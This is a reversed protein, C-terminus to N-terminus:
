QSHDRGHAPVLSVSPGITGTGQVLARLREADGETTGPLLAAAVDRRNFAEMGNRTGRWMVSQRLRSTPPLRGILRAYPDFLRPFRVGLREVFTRSSRERVRLPKRVIEVNELSM